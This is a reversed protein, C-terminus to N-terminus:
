FLPFKNEQHELLQLRLDLSHSPSHQGPLSWPLTRGAEALEPGRWGDQPRPPM